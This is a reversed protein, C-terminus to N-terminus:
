SRQMFRAYIFAFLGGSLAGFLHAEFSVKSDIPFVGFIMSGYLFLVVCSLSLNMIQRDFWGLIISFSWLGFIWGSAGIHVGDRAFLWMLMGSIVIIFLSSKLFLSIPRLLSISSFIMLGILNNTLHYLDEHIFPALLIHYWHSFSRPIVGFQSLAGNFLNNAAFVSILLIALAVLLKIRIWVFSSVL